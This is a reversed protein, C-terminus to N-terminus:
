TPIKMDLVSSNPLNALYDGRVVLKSGRIGSGIVLADTEAVSSDVLIQWDEPLGIPTIGGYEMGTLEVAEDMPAFSLKRADLHKKVTKNVDARDTALIMLAAYWVRDARKAKVVVCNASVDLGIDYAQCFNETDALETDSQSAYVGAFGQNSLFKMVPEAVLESTSDAETFTLKGLEM